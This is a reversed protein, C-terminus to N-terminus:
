RQHFRVQTHQLMKGVIEHLGSKANLNEKGHENIYQESRASQNETTSFTGKSTSPTAESGIEQVPIIKSKRSLNVVSSFAKFKGNQGQKMNKISPIELKTQIGKKNEINSSLTTVQDALNQNSGNQIWLNKFVNKWGNKIIRDKNYSTNMLSFYPLIILYM